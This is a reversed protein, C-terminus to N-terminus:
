TEDKKTFRFARAFDRVAASPKSHILQSIRVLQRRYTEDVLGILQDQEESAAQYFYATGDADRHILGRHILDELLGRAADRSIYLRKSLDSITWKQPRTDRLLLLAELNPVSEIQDLIFRIVAADTNDQGSTM